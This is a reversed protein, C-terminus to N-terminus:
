RRAGDPVTATQRISGADDSRIIWLRITNTVRRERPLIAIVALTHKRVEAGVNWPCEFPPKEVTCILRGDGFFQMREVPTGAPDISTRITVEGTVVSLDPPWLIRLYPQVNAAPAAPPQAAPKGSADTVRLILWPTGDQHRVEGNPSGEVIEWRCQAAACVADFAQRLTASKIELSVKRDAVSPAAEVNDSRVFARLGRQLDMRVWIYDAMLEQDLSTLSITPRPKKQQRLQEAKENGHIIVTGENHKLILLTKGVEQWECGISECIATLATRATVNEVHITVLARGLDSSVIAVQYGLSKALPTLIDDARVKNFSLSVRERALDKQQAASEAALSLIALCLIAARIM